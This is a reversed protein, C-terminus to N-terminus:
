NCPLPETALSTMIGFRWHMRMHWHMLAFRVHQCGDHSQQRRHLEAAAAQTVLNKEPPGATDVSDNSASHVVPYQHMRSPCGSSMM